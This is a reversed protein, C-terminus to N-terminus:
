RVVAVPRHKGNLHEQSPSSRRKRSLDQCDVHTSSWQAVMRTIWKGDLQVSKFRKRRLQASTM